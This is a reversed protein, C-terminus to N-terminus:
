ARSSHASLKPRVEDMMVGVFHSGVLELLVEVQGKGRLSLIFFLDSPLQIEQFAVVLQGIRERVKGNAVLPVRLM